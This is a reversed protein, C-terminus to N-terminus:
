QLIRRGLQLTENVSPCDADNPRARLLEVVDALGRYIIDVFTGGWFFLPSYPIGGGHLDLVEQPM